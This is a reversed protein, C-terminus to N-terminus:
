RKLIQATSGARAKAGGAGLAAARSFSQEALMLQVEGLNQRAIAYDPAAALAMNLADHAMDLKGQSVYESALNNWPEPLEPYLTTMNRYVSIAENHRGLASLARGHLFMLQVDTGIQGADALQIERKEIIDLAAQNDGSDLMRSIRNTIESSTLPISTDINPTLAELLRALGKWGGEAKPPEAFLKQEDPGIHRVTAAMGGAEADFTLNDPGADISANLDVHPVLGPVPTQALAMRMPLLALALTITLVHCSIRVVPHAGIQLYTSPKSYKDVAM